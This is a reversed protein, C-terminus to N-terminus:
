QLAVLIPILGKGSSLPQLAKGIITGLARSPESAAMAHGETLSTTLLDGIEIPTQEADAWCYVKGMLAVPMREHTSPAVDLTLAPRYNGAGSIVGAVRKDYALRSPSLLGDDNLVMVTGPQITRGSIVNFEEACDANFLRIDSGPGTVDINGTIEVNGEFFGALRGGRGHVGVGNVSEGFVGDGGDGNTGVVGPQASFASGGEVGPQDARGIGFLPPVLQKIPENLELTESTGTELQKTPENPISKESM